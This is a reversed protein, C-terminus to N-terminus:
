KTQSLSRTIIVRGDQIDPWRLALVEGRRAGTGACLELFPGLCWPRQGGRDDHRAASTYTRHRSTKEPGAARQRVGSEYEATAMQDGALLCEFTSWRRESGNKEFARATGENKSPSRREKASSEM